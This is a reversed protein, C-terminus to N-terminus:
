TSTPPCHFYRYRATSAITGGDVEQQSGFAIHSRCAAEQFAGDALMAQGVLDGDVFAAGVRGGDLANLSFGARRDFQSLHLIEVVDHLLIMPGDFADDSGHEAELRETTRPNQQGTNLSHVHDLFPLKLAAVPLGRGGCVQEIRQGGSRGASSVKM